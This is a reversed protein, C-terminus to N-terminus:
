FLRPLSSALQGTAVYNRGSLGTCILELEVTRATENKNKRPQRNPIQKM